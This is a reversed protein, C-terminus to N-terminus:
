ASNMGTPSNEDYIVSKQPNWSIKNKSEILSCSTLETQLKMMPSGSFISKKESPAYNDTFFSQLSEPNYAAQPNLTRSSVKNDATESNISSMKDETTDVLYDFEKITVSSHQQHEKNNVMNEPPEVICNATEDVIGGNTESDIETFTIYSNNNKIGTDNMQPLSNSFIDQMRKRENNIEDSLDQYTQFNQNHEFNQRMETEQNVPLPPIQSSRHRQLLEKEQDTLTSTSSFKIEIEVPESQVAHCSMETTTKNRSSARSASNNRWQQVAIQFSKASEEENFEGKFLQGGVDTKKETIPPPPVPVKKKHAQLENDYLKFNAVPNNKEQWNVGSVYPYYTENGWGAKPRMVLGDVAPIIRKRGWKLYFVGIAHANITQVSSLPLNGNIDSQIDMIENSDKKRAISIWSQKTDAKNENNTQSLVPDENSLKEILRTYNTKRESIELPEDKLVKIRRSKDKKILDNLVNNTSAIAQKKSRPPTPTKSVSSKWVNTVNKREKKELEMTQKLQHLRWEMQKNDIDLKNMERQKYTAKNGSNKRLNSARNPKVFSM